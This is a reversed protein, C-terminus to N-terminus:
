YARWPVAVENKSSHGEGHGLDWQKLITMIGIRQNTCESHTCHTTNTHIFYSLVQAVGQALTQFIFIRVNSLCRGHAHCLEVVHILLQDVILTKEIEESIEEGVTIAHHTLNGLFDKSWLSLPVCSKGQLNHGISHCCQTFDRLFWRLELDEIQITRHNVFKERGQIFAGFPTLDEQQIGNSIIGGLNLLFWQHVQKLREKLKWSSFSACFMQSRIVGRRAWALEATTRDVM